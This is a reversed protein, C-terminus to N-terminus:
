QVACFMSIEYLDAKYAQSITAHQRHSSFTARYGALHVFALRRGSTKAGCICIYACQNEATLLEVREASCPQLYTNRDTHATQYDQISQNSQMQSFRDPKRSV